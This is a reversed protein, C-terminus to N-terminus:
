PVTIRLLECMGSPHLAFSEVCAPVLCSAGAGMKVADGSAIVVEAEGRACFFAQFTEPMGAEARAERLIWREVRFYPSLCVLHKEVTESQELVDAPGHVDAEERWQIVQFAQDIHLKRPNGAADMRDWDYLRYTTNSTQQVELILCGAGLAHVCGGPIYFADNPEAPFKVLLENLDGAQLARRCEAPTTGPRLGMILEAGPQANLVYWMETKPEGGFKAAAEDDPHVQVSLIKAADIIKILLPFAGSGARTGQLAVGHAKVLESLRAGAFAGNKVISEGDPHTSIEWSEACVPPTGSRGYIQSIRNGGWLYDKYVPEFLLPYRPENPM